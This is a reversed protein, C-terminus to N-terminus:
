ADEYLGLKMLCLGRNFTNLANSDEKYAREFHQHAENFQGLEFNAQGANRYLEQLEAKKYNTIPVSDQNAASSYASKGSDRIKKQAKFLKIAVSFDM